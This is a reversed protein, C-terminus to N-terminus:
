LVSVCGLADSNRGLSKRSGAAPLWFNTSRARSPSYPRWLRTSRRRVPESAAATLHTRLPSGAVRSPPWAPEVYFESCTLRSARVSVTM